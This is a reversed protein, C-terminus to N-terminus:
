IPRQVPWRIYSCCFSQLIAVWAEFTIGTDAPPRFTCLQVVESGRPSSSQSLPPLPTNLVTAALTQTSTALGPFPEDVYKWMTGSPAFSPFYIDSGNFTTDLLMATYAENLRWRMMLTEDVPMYLSDIWAPCKCPSPKM